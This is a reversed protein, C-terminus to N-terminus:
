EVDKGTTDGKLLTCYTTYHPGATDFVINHRLNFILFYGSLFKDVVREDSTSVSNDIDLQITDGVTLDSNGFLEVSVMNQHMLYTYATKPGLTSSFFTEPRDSDIVYFYSTGTGKSFENLFRDTNFSGTNKFMFDTAHDTIQYQTVDMKKTILDFQQITNNLVGDKVKNIVDFRKDNSISIISFFRDAVGSHKTSMDGYVYKHIKQQPTEILSALSKFNYGRKNQFFVFPSSEKNTAVARSRIFDIANLANLKPIIIKHTGKTVDINDTPLDTKILNDLIDKVINDYTDNYGKSVWMNFSKIFDISVCSLFFTLGTSQNSPIGRKISNVFFKYKVPETDGTTVFEIDVIEEGVLDGLGVDKDQTFGIGDNIGIDCFVTSHQISEYIDLTIVQQTIDIRKSPELYKSIVIKKIEPKDYSQQVGSTANVAM